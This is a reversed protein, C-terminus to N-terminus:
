QNTIYEQREAEEREAKALFQQTREAVRREAESQQPVPPMKKTQPM